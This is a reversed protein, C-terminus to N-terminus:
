PNWVIGKVLSKDLSMIIGSGSTIYYQESTSYLIKIKVTENTKSESYNSSKPFIDQLASSDQPLNETDIMMVVSIPRGGGYSQPIKPYVYFIYFYCALPILSLYAFFRIARIIEGIIRYVFVSRKLFKFNTKIYKQKEVEDKSDRLAKEIIHPVNKQQWKSLLIIAFHFPFPIISIVSSSLESFAIALDNASLNPYNKELSIIEEKTSDLENKIKNLRTKLLEWLWRLSFVVIALPLGIWIYIPKIIEIIPIGLSATHVLVTFFGMLYAISGWALFNEIQKSDFTKSTFM